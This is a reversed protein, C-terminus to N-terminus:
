GYEPEPLFVRDRHSVADGGLSWCHSYRERIDHEGSKRRNGCRLNLNRHDNELGKLNNSTAQHRNSEPPPNSRILFALRSGGFSFMLTTDITSQSHPAFSPSYPQFMSKNKSPLPSELARHIVFEDAITLRRLPKRSEASYM